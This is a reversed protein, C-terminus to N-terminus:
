LIIEVEICLEQLNMLRPINGTGQTALLPEAAGDVRHLVHLGSGAGPAPALIVGPALHELEDAIVLGGALEDPAHRLQLVMAPTLLVDGLAGVGTLHAGSVEFSHGAQHLVHHTFVEVRRQLIRAVFYMKHKLLISVTVVHCASELKALLQWGFGFAM